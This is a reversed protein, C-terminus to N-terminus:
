KLCWVVTLHIQTQSKLQNLSRNSSQRRQVEVRCYTSIWLLIVLFKVSKGAVGGKIGDLLFAPLFLSVRDRKQANKEAVKMPNSAPNYYIMDFMLLQTKDLSKNALRVKSERKTDIIRQNEESRFNKRM